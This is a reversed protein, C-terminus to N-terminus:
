AEDTSTRETAAPMRAGANIPLRLAALALLAAIASLAAIWGLNFSAVVGSLPAGILVGAYIGNMYFGTSQGLRMGALSQVWSLATVAFLGYYAGEIVAAFFAWGVGQGFLYSAYAVLAGSAAITLITRSSVRKAVLPTLLIVVMEVGAKLGLFLGTASEPVDFRRLLFLPLSTATAIHALSFLFVVLFAALHPLMERFRSSSSASPKGATEAWALGAAEDLWKASLLVAAAGLASVSAVFFFAMAIGRSGAVAFGIAPGAVWAASTIVRLMSNVAATSRGDAGALLRGLTYYIPAVAGGVATGIITLPLLLLAGNLAGIAALAGVIQFVACMLCLLSKRRAADVISSLRHNVLMTVAMVAFSYGGVLWLPWGLRTALTFPVLPVMAANALM